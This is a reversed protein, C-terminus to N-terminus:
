DRTFSAGRARLVRRRIVIRTVGYQVATLAVKMAVPATALCAAWLRMDGHAVLAVNGAALAFMAAAWAYGFRHSLDAGHEVVIPPMYRTMWGRKLMTAGVAAYILTPKIMLFRPDHAILAAAGFVVVLALSLWQMADVTRGRLRTIAVGAVGAAVAVGFSVALRGTMAYVAAFVLTSVLDGAILAFAHALYPLRRPPSRTLALTTM